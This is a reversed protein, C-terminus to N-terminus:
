SSLKPLIALLQKRLQIEKTVPNSLEAALLAREEVYRRERRAVTFITEYHIGAGILYSIAPTIVLSDNADNEGGKKSPTDINVMALIKETNTLVSNTGISQDVTSVGELVGELVGDLEKGLQQNKQLLTKQLLALLNNTFLKLRENATQRLDFISVGAPLEISTDTTLYADHDRYINRKLRYANPYITLIQQLHVLTFEFADGAYGHSKEVALKLDSFLVFTSRNLMVHLLRDMVTFHAILRYGWKPMSIEDKKEDKKENVNLDEVVANASDIALQQVQFLRRNFAKQECAGVQTVPSQSFELQDPTRGGNQVIGSEVGNGDGIAMAASGASGAVGDTAANAASKPLPPTSATSPPTAAESPTLTSPTLPPTDAAAAAAAPPSRTTAILPLTPIAPHLEVRCKKKTYNEKVYEDRKRRANVRQIDVKQLRDYETNWDIPKSKKQPTQM